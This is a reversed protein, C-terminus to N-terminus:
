LFESSKPVTVTKAAVVPEATTESFLSVSDLMEERSGDILSGPARWGVLGFEEPFFARLNKVPMGGPVLFPKSGVIGNYSKGNVDFTVM